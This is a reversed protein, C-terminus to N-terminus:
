VPNLYTLYSNIWGAATAINNPCKVKSHLNLRKFLQTCDVMYENENFPTMSMLLQLDLLTLSKPVLKSQNSLTELM